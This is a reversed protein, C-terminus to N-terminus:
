RIRAALFATVDFGKRDGASVGASRAASRHSAGLMAAVATTVPAQGTSVEIWRWDGDANAELFVPTDGRILFDFAAFRLRLAGALTEAAQFVAPPPNARRATVREPALWPEAPTSKVVTFAHSQGDIHYVRLEADHEIYEQVTVPPASGTNPPQGALDAPRFVAPFLGTLRGPEAELFHHHLAKVVVRPTGLMAAARRLDTAVITRPIAIGHQAAIRLQELPGVDAAPISVAGLSGLQGALCTWADRLALDRVPDGTTRIARDSFHRNWVVTPTLWRGDLCMARAAPDLLLDVDELDDADIRATPIGVGSLLEQVADLEADCSRTLLTVCGPPKAPVATSHPEPAMERRRPRSGARDPRVDLVFPVVGPGSGDPPGVGTV